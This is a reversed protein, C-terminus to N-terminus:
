AEDTPSVNKARESIRRNLESFYEATPAIGQGEDIEQRAQEFKLRAEVSEAYDLIAHTEGEIPVLSQTVYDAKTSVMSFTYWAKRCRGDDSQCMGESALPPGSIRM